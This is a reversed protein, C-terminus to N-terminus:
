REGRRWPFQEAKAVLQRLTRRDARGWKCEAFVATNNEGDIAVIDIETGHWWLKGIKTFSLRGKRRLLLMHELAIQEWARSAHIDLRQNIRKATEEPDLELLHRPPYVESFWWAFFSDAITYRAYRPRGEMGLPYVREVIGLAEELVRLYKGISDRPVGVYNAIETPRTNGRAIAELVAIYKDPERTEAYLISLPEEHLPAGPELVLKAINEQLSRSPDLLSLYYPTGGFVSYGRVRDEPSWGEMFVRAERYRFGTIRLVRTVRGHIPSNYSLALKEVVGVGSGVLVVMPNYEHAETDWFSQLESLLGTGALRQFEDIVIVPREGLLRAAFRLLDRLWQFSAEFGTAVSLQRSLDRLALEREAYNVVLCLGRRGRLFRRVLFTGLRRQGYVVVLEPRGSAYVEELVALERERDM